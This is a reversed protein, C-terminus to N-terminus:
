GREDGRLDLGLMIFNGMQLLEGEGLLTVILHLELSLHSLVNAIALDDLEPVDEGLTVDPHAARLSCLQVDEVHQDIKM